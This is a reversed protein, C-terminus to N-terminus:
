NGEFIINRALESKLKWKPIEISVVEHKYIYLEHLINFFGM